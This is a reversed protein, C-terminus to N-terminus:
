TGVAQTSRTRRTALTRGANIAPLEIARRLAQCLLLTAALALAILALGAAGQMKPAGGEALIFVASLVGYHFLYIGYSAQGLWILWGRSFLKAITDKPAAVVCLVVSSFAAAFLAHSHMSGPQPHFWAGLAYAAVAAAVIWRTHARVWDHLAAGHPGHSAAAIAVGAFLADCRCFPLSYSAPYPFFGRAAVSAAAIALAAAAIARTDLRRVLFPILAYFQVEIALSWTAAMLDGGYRGTSALFFNQTFTAYAYAPYDDATLISQAGALNLAAWGALLVLYLPVIRFARRIAFGAFYGDGDRSHLLSSAIFYGSLVFFLDVGSWLHIGLARVASSFPGTDARIVPYVIYHLVLISLIAVGRLGDLAADRHEHSKSASAQTTM